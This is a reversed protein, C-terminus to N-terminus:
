VLWGEGVVVVVVGVEEKAWGGLERVGMESCAEVARPLCCAERVAVSLSM